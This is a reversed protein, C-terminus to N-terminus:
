NVSRVVRFGRSFHRHSPRNIGRGSVSARDADSGCGGGRFVRSSGSAAGTPNNRPSRSYYDEDFWDWCWEWVNGSMDYIGLSNAKKTGVDHTMVGSNEYYWAVEDFNNSGSYKYDDKNIGGKAAYEWEAETPLRYGNANWNCTINDGSGSYCPTLGEKKSLRNCYEVADYWTVSEVPM